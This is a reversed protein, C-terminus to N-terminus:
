AAGSTKRSRELELRLRVIEAYLIRRHRVSLAEPPLPNKNSRQRNDECLLLNDLIEKEESPTMRGRESGSAM